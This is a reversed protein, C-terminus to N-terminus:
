DITVRSNTVTLGSHERPPDFVGPSWSSPSADRALPSEPLMFAIPSTTGLAQSPSSRGV